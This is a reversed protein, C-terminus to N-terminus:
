LETHKTRNYFTKRHILVHKRVITFLCKRYVNSCKYAYIYTFLKETKTSIGLHMEETALINDSWFISVSKEQQLELDM